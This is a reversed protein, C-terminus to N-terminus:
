IKDSYPLQKIFNEMYQFDPTQNVTVPLNIKHKYFDKQRYQKGYQYRYKEKNIITSIFFLAYKSLPDKPKLALINDDCFFHEIHVFSNCFMDIIIANSHMTLDYNSIYDKVGLNNQGATVLPISGAVRDEQVLRTGRTPTFLESLYFEGWNSKDLELKKPKISTKIKSELDKLAVINSIYSDMYEFNISGDDYVPLMLLSEKMKELTWKRGYGFKYKNHKIVTCLFLGINRNLNQSKLNLVNVDDSAWFPKDQYFAEGVSGNYNVTICNGQHTPNESIHQRIGNNDSIAGIYNTTGYIMNDKTLRKGKSFTFVEEMRFLKWNSINLEQQM